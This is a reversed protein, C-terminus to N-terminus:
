ENTDEEKEEITYVISLLVLCISLIYKWISPPSFFLNLLGLLFTEMRIRIKIKFSCTNENDEHRIRKRQNPMCSATCFGRGLRGSKTTFNKKKM